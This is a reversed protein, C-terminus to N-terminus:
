RLCLVRLRLPNCWFNTCIHIIAYLHSKRWPQRVFVRIFTVGIEQEVTLIKCVNIMRNMSRSLFLSLSLFPFRISFWGYWIMSRFFHYCYTQTSECVKRGYNFASASLATHLVISPLFTSRNSRQKIHVPDIYMIFKSVRKERAREDGVESESERWRKRQTYIMHAVKFLRKVQEGM